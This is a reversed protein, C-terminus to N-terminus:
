THEWSAAVLSCAEDTFQSWSEADSSFAVFQSTDLAIPRRLLTTAFESLGPNHGILWLTETADPTNNVLLRLEPVEALYLGEPTETAPQWGLEEFLVKATERTRTSPSCLVRDPLYGALAKACAVLSDRGLSSLPRTLDESEQRAHGHRVLVLTKM